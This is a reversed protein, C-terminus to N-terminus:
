PQLHNTRCFEEVVAVLQPNHSFEVVKWLREQVATVSPHKLPALLHELELRHLEERLHELRQAPSNPEEATAAHSEFRETAEEIM